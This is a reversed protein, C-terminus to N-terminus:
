VYWISLGTLNNNVPHQTVVHNFKIWVVVGIWGPRGSQGHQLSNSFKTDRNMQLDNTMKKNQHKNNLHM